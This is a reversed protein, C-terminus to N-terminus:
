WVDHSSSPGTRPGYREIYAEHIHANKQRLSQELMPGLLFGLVLPAMPYGFSRLFFGIIGFALM